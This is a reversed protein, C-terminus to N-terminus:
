RHGHGSGKHTQRKQRHEGGAVPPALPLKGALYLAVAQDPDSQTTILAEIGMKALRAIMGEGMGASILVQVGDLPHPTHPTTAHLSQELPLELLQRGAVEGASIEYIWFRRCSGTHGTVQKRNQSAIAIKM